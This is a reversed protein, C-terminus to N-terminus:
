SQIRLPMPQRDRPDAAPLRWRAWTGACELTQDTVQTVNRGRRGMSAEDRYTTFDTMESTTGQAPSGEQQDEASRREGRRWVADHRLRGGLTVKGTVVEEGGGALFELMRHDVELGQATGIREVIQAGRYLAIRFERLGLDQDRVQGVIGVFLHGGAGAGFLQRGLTVGPSRKSIRQNAAHLFVIVNGGDGRHVIQQRHIGLIMAGCKEGAAPEHMLAAVRLADENQLVRDRQERIIGAAM